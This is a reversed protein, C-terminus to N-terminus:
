EHSPQSTVAEGLEDQSVDRTNGLTREILCKGNMWKTGMRIEQMRGGEYKVVCPTVPWPLICTEGIRVIAVPRTGSWTNKIDDASWVPYLEAARGWNEHIVAEWYERCVAPSEASLKNQLDQWIKREPSPPIKALDVDVLEWYEKLDIGDTDKLLDRLIYRHGCGVLVVLRQGPYQKAAKIINDAMIRNQESWDDRFFHSESVLEKYDSDNRHIQPLIEHYMSNQLRVVADLVESNIIEPKATAADTLCSEAQLNCTYLDAITRDRSEPDNKKIIHESWKFWKNAMANSREYYRIKAFHEDLNPRDFPIQPVSLQSAAQDSAWFEPINFEGGGPNEVVNSPCEFLIASPKLALV